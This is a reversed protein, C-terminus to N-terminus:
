LPCNGVFFSSHFNKLFINLYPLYNLYKFKNKKKSFDKIKSSLSEVIFYGIEIISLISCGLFFRLLGGVDAVVPIFFLGINTMNFSM